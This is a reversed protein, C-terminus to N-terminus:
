SISRKIRFEKPTSGFKSKFLRFFYSQNGYGVKEMIEAITSDEKLLLEQARRLRVDNLYETITIGCSDKFLKGVYASSLKVTSAISQQSLNYDGYKQWILEKVTEIIMENREMSSPKAEDCIATCLSLFAMHLEDLTYHDQPLLPIREIDVSLHTIRNSTIDAAANKIVWAMDAIARRMDELQLKALLTFARELESGADTLKGKKIAESLKKEVDEPLSKQKNELNTRIDQIEIIAKYGMLISYQSLQYSQYYSASLQTLQAAAEGIGCSLSLHYYRELVQQVDAISPKVATPDLPEEKGSLILTFHDEQMDIMECCFARSLVERTINIVAFSHLKKMATSTRRDYEDYRDIRLTCVTFPGQPALQLEHKTILQRMDLESLSRYDTLFKRIYYKRVIQESSIEQLQGSLQEYFDGMADLENRKSSDPAATRMHPLIRKLMTEIPGYLKYSLWISIGISLLIFAGTLAFNRTRMDSVAQMIEKYPQIYLITWDGIGHLYTIMVKQGGSNGIVFGSDSQQVSSATHDPDVLQGIAEQDLPLSESSHGSDFLQGGSTRILIEGSNGSSVGNLKSLSDFVWDPKIFLIVASQESTFPGYADTVIFAFADIGNSHNFSFPILRSTPLSGGSTHLLWELISNKTTGGDVLFDSSSGYLERTSANYVAMSHLFSSSELMNYMQQYGRIYEMKPLNNSFMLPILANDRYAFTSLHVIIENMYSLNYQTQTLVKLNADEQVHKVSRELLYTNAASLGTLILAMTLMISFLVRKFYKKSTFYGYAKM